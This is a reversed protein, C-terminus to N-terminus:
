RLRAKLFFDVHARHEPAREIFGHVLESKDSVFAAMASPREPRLKGIASVSSEM